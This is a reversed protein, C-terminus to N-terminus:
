SIAEEYDKQLSETRVSVDAAIAMIMNYLKNYVYDIKENTSDYDITANKVLNYAYYITDAINLKLDVVEEDHKTKLAEIKENLEKGQNASLPKNTDTSTLNDVIDSVNVKLTNLSDYASKVSNATAATTISSSSYSDTLQLIGAQSTSGTNVSIVGSSVNINSGIKVLGLVSATAATNPITVTRTTQSSIHGTSDSAVQSINFTGGFSPTQNTTEIGTTATYVPHTFTITRDTQSSIHGSADSIVQSITVATGLTVSQNSTPKGTTATYSPHTYNNAGTDIGDLKEKDVASMLGNSGGSGSTSATATSNPIKVTRTTQSTIHGTSDSSVQSINFTGGFSPTQNSSEIGTTSTYTPHSYNNANTAISNLKEKDTASMLGASGGTGSTSAVAEDNPITIIRDTGSNVHGSADSSIQTVTFTGGFSPTQNAIPKGTIATYTPHIYNNAGDDINDLKTKLTDTFDNTSLGKGSIKDVKNSLSKAVSGEITDDTLYDALEKLTDLEEPASNVLDKVADDVYKKVIKNQVPNTSSDSMSSDVTTKNANSEIGNLKSKDSSSMLGDSTATATSNPIKVTRTTQSTIHGTSDSSVQSINFTGGFSPTQNSSEIGTTSTYSPHTYIDNEPIDWTGDAKLFKDKDAILPQPVIGKTGNSNNTAGTFETNALDYAVKVSNPTAATTTSTSSYSDELQVVGKTSTTGDNVSITGNNVNINSGVIVGGKDSTTANPLTYNNANYDINNLKSKDSSSMLGATDVTANDYTTNPPVVWSGDNRLYKTEDTGKGLASLANANSIYIENNSGISLNSGIKVLGFDTTSARSNALTTIKDDLVKGQRADLVKNEVNETTLNNNIDSHVVANNSLTVLATLIEKGRHASLADTTNSIIGSIDDIVTVKNFETINNFTSSGDGIKVVSGDFGIENYKLITNNDDIRRIGIIPLDSISSSNDYIKIINNTSDYLIELKKLLNNNFSM